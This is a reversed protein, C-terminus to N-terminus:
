AHVEADTFVAGGEHLPSPAYREQDAGGQDTDGQIHPEPDVLSRHEGLFLGSVQDGGRRDRLQQAQLASLDQQGRAADQAAEAEGVHSVGVQGHVGMEM